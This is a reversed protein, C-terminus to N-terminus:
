DRKTHGTNESAKAPPAKSARCPSGRGPGSNSAAVLEGEKVLLDPDLAWVGGGGGKDGLGGCEPKKGEGVVWSVGEAGARCFLYIFGRKKTM